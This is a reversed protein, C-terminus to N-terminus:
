EKKLLKSIQEIMQEMTETQYDNEFTFDFEIQNYDMSNADRKLFYEEAIRDRQMVKNKREIEDAKMLIKLNCKDWYKSDIPLLAWELILIEPEKELIEDLKEQMYGWTIQTLIDM